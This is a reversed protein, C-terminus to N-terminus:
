VHIGLGRVVLVLATVNTALSSSDNCNGLSFHDVGLVGLHIYKEFMGVKARCYLMSTLRGKSIASAVCGDLVFLNLIRCSLLKRSDLGDVWYTSVSHLANSSM